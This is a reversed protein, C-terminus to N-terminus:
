RFYDVVGQTWGAIKRNLSTSSKVNIRLTGHYSKGVNKRLTKPNGKKYYIHQFVSPDCKIIASWFDIIEATRQRQLGHIYIELTTDCLDKDCIEKLWRLFICIMDPDTNTFMVRCSPDHDKQKSGEAWYLMTGILCLERKSIAGIDEKAAAIIKRTITVRQQHKAEAGRRVAALRKETLRQKQRISLGVSRLWLGITSKAVPVEHMIERYSWGDRRFAIAREKLATKM